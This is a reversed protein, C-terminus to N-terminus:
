ARIVQSYSLDYFFGLPSIADTQSVAVKGIFMVGINNNRNQHNHTVTINKLTGNEVGDVWKTPNKVSSLLCQWGNKRKPFGRQVNGIPLPRWRRAKSRWCGRHFAM